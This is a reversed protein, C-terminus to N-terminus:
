DGSLNKIQRVVAQTTYDPTSAGATVGVTEAGKFWSKKLDKESRVWYTKKNLTKAIQYLRKTNASTKSGIVLMLDNEKPLTKIEQQKITTPQCITNHFKLDKIRGKLIKVIKLVNELNQTSQVVLSAKNIKLLKKYPIKKYDDIILAKNKLQGVIGNVEDHYKDGIIIIKYGLTEDQCAIKHIQRVKPCTADVITFGLRLARQYIKQPVGHARILLTKGKGRSLKKIKKVGVKEIQKAVEENHVIDGLMYVKEGSAAILLATKLAKKVGFCFGASKALNIKM